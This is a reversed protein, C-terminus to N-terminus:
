HCFTITLYPITDSGFNSRSVQYKQAHETLRCTIVVDEGDQHIEADTLFHSDKGLSGEPFSYPYDSYHAYWDSNYEPADMSIGGSELCTNYLRVTFVDGDMYVDTDPSTTVAPFFSQFEERSNGSPIFAFSLGNVDIRADYLQHHRDTDGRENTDLNWSGVYVPETTELWDEYEEHHVPLYDNELYGEADGFITVRGSKPMGKFPVEAEIGSLTYEVTGFGSVRYSTFVSTGTLQVTRGTEGFVYYLLSIYPSANDAMEILFDGAYPTVAKIEFGQGDFMEEMLARADKEKLPYKPSPGKPTEPSSPTYVSTQSPPATPTTPGDIPENQASCGAAPLACLALLLVFAKKM